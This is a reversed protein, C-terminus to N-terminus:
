YGKDGRTADVQSPSYTTDWASTGCQVVTNLQPEVLNSACLELQLEADTNRKAVTWPQTGIFGAQM